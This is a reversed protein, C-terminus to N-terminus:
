GRKLPRMRGATSKASKKGGPRQAIRVGALLGSVIEVLRQALAPRTRGKRWIVSIPRTPAHTALRLFRWRTTGYASAAMAPVLSLGLDNAVLEFTTSLQTTQCVICTMGARAACFARIQRGLCHMEHLAIVPCRRLDAWTVRAAQALADNPTTAVLLDENALMHQEILEHPDITSVIACDIENDVVADILEDTLGERLMVVSQPSETRIRRVAAPFLYPAITPIAGVNLLRAGHEAEHRLNADVERVEALIRRARDLLARGADTLAVGRGLRDFLRVRLGQELKRIQQSLSPQAVHCHQAARTVSGAEAVAVFYRLQHLEM